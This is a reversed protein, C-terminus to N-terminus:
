LAIVPPKWLSIAANAAHAKTVGNASRTVTFTQPNTVSVNDFTFTPSTNTNGTEAIARVGYGGSASLSSDTAVLLWGPPETTGVRWAKARLTTGIVEARIWWQQAATYVRPLLATAFGGTFVAAVNKTWRLTAYGTTAFQIEALYYNSTDAKRLQFGADLPAGTAVAPVIVTGLVGMDVWGSGASVQRSVNVSSLLLSGVGSGVSYDTGTGGTTTYSQGSDASGWSSSSTRTFTDTLANAIATVSVQEGEIGANFPFDGANVASTTWVPDASTAVTLSTASSTVSSVLYSSAGDLRGLTADGVVFTRWPAFPSGTLTATWTAADWTETYYELVLDLGGPPYQVPPNAVTVREALDTALWSSILAPSGFFNLPLTPVRMETVTGVHARWSAQDLLQGDTAVNVSVSDDYTGMTATSPDIYRVSSGATRSATIDNRLRQDDRVPDVPLKVHGLNADLALSVALNYRGAASVYSLGASLGDGLFAADADVCDQILDIFKAIRQAGMKVNSTGTVAVPVDEEGALRTVRATALEGAYGATASVSNVTGAGHWVALAAVAPVSADTQRNPNLTVGRVGGQITVGTVQSIITVGDLLVTATVNFGSDVVKVQVNHTLGDDLGVGSTYSTLGGGQVYSLQVGGGAANNLQLDWYAVSNSTRIRLVTATATSAPIASVQVAAEVRWTITTFVLGATSVSASLTGGGSLGVMSAAGSTASQGFAVTGSRVLPATNNGTTLGSAAQTATSGDELPWWATPTTTATAYVRYLPSRLVRGQRLRWLAGNATIPAEAYSGDGAPWALPLSSVYGQFRLVAGTGPDLKVRIPTGLDWRGYYPSMPYGATFRGDTNLLRLTCEAAQASTLDPRGRRVSVQGKAYATIDTWTWTAPDTAPNAGFAAEVTSTLTLM